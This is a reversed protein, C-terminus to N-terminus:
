IVKEWSNENRLDKLTKEEEEKEKASKAITHARTTMMMMTTTTMSTNMIIYRKSREHSNQPGFFVVRIKSWILSLSRLNSLWRTCVWQLKFGGGMPVRKHTTLQFITIIVAIILNLTHTHKFLQNFQQSTKMLRYQFSISLLLLWWIDRNLGDCTQKKNRLSWHV